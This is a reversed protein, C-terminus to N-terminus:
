YFHIFGRQNRLRFDCMIVRVDVEELEYEGDSVNGYLYLDSLYENIIKPAVGANMTGM